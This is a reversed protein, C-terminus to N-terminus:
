DSGMLEACRRDIALDSGLLKLSRMAAIREYFIKSAMAYVIKDEHNNKDFLRQQEGTLVLPQGKLDHLGIEVNACENDSSNQHMHCSPPSKFLRRFVFQFMELTLDLEKALGFLFDETSEILKLARDLAQERVGPIAWDEGAAGTQVPSGSLLKTMRNQFPFFVPMDLFETMSLPSIRNLCWDWSSVKRRNYAVQFFESVYRALPERFLTVVVHKIGPLRLRHYCM